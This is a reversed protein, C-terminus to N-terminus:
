RWTSTADYSRDAPRWGLSLDLHGGAQVEDLGDLGVAAEGEVGGVGPAGSAAATGSRPFPRHRAWWRGDALGCPDDGTIWARAVDAPLTTQPTAPFDAADDVPVLLHLPAVGLVAALTLWEDITITRRRGSELNAIIARDWPVGAATMEDGLRQASWERARRLERMQQTIVLAPGRLRQTM